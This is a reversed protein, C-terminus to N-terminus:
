DNQELSDLYSEYDNMFLSLDSFSARFLMKSNKDLFFVSESENPRYTIIHFEGETVIKANVDIKKKRKM